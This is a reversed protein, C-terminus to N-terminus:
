KTWDFVVGACEGPRNIIMDFAAPSEDVSLRHTILSDVDLGGRMMMRWSHRVHEATLTWPFFAEFVRTGQLSRIRFDSKYDGVFVYRGRKRVAELTDEVVKPSATADAVIDAGDPWIEKVAQVLDVESANIVHDAGCAKSISLRNAHLDAVAVEAGRLSFHQAAFQGIIGQGIVLVTDGPVPRPMTAAMSSVSAIGGFAAHESSIGEPLKICYRDPGELNRVEPNVCLVAPSQHGGCFLREGSAPRDASFYSVREGVAFLSRARKGSEVVRGVPGYGPILPTDGVCTTVHYTETGLSVASAELEVKIDWEGVPRAEIPRVEIKGSEVAVIARSKM